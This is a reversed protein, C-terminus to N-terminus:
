SIGTWEDSLDIVTGGDGGNLRKCGLLSDTEDVVEFKWPGPTHTM